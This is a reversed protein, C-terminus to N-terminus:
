FSLSGGVHVRTTGGIGHAVAFNIRVIAASLWVGGGFGRKFTQDALRGGKDYVTGTDVFANVGIKGIDLPSTLPVRV